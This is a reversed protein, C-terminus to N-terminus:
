RYRFLVDVHFAQTRATQSKPCMSGNIKLLYFIISYKFFWRGVSPSQHCWVAVLRTTSLLYLTVIANGKSDFALHSYLSHLAGRTPHRTGPPGTHPRPDRHHHARAARAAVLSAPGPETTSPRDSRAAAAPEWHRESRPARHDHTSRTHLSTQSILSDSTSSHSPAAAAQPGLRPYVRRWPARRMVGRTKPWCSGFMLSFLFVALPGGSPRMVLSSSLNM